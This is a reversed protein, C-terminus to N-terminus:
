NCSVFAIGNSLRTETTAYPSLGFNLISVAGYIDHRREIESNHLGPRFPSSLCILNVRNIM